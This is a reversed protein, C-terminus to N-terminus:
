GPDVRLWRVSLAARDRLFQPAQEEVHVRAVLIYECFNIRLLIPGVRASECCAKMHIINIHDVDVMALEKFFFSIRLLLNAKEISSM